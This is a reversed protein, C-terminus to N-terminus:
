VYSYFVCSYTCLIYIIPYHYDDMKILVIKKYIFLANYKILYLLNM